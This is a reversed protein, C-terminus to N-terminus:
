VITLEAVICGCDLCHLLFTEEHERTITMEHRVHETLKQENVVYSQFKMTVEGEM